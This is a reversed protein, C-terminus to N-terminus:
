DCRPYTITQMLICEIVHLIFYSIWEWVEVAVDDFNTFPYTIENWEKYSTYNSIWAPTVTPEHEYFPGKIVNCHSKMLDMHNGKRHVFAKDYRDQTHYM